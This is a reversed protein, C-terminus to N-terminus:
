KRGIYYFGNSRNGNMTTFVLPEYRLGTFGSLLRQIWSEEHHRCVAGEPLEFVGYTHYRERYKEYRATNREDTNLLFDNVYLIGGPRLVRRIEGILKRQKEDERICTLVAFLIVADVSGDPLGIEETQMVRLDLWPYQARGRNIMGESFDMGILRRYGLRYMEELTRGYGCGVDLITKEKDVYRIFEEAHFPTTFTKTESVENWYAEQEM